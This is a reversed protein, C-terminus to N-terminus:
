GCIFGSSRTRQAIITYGGGGKEDMAWTGGYLWYVLGRLAFSCVDKRTKSLPFNLILLNLLASCALFWFSNKSVLAPCPITPPSHILTLKLSLESLFPFLPPSLKPLSTDSPLALAPLSPNPHLPLALTLQANYSNHDIESPSQTAPHIPAVLLPSRDNTPVTHPITPVPSPCTQRLCVVPM